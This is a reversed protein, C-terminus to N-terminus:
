HSRIYFIVIIYLLILLRIKLDLKMFSYYKKELWTLIKELIISGGRSVAKQQIKIMKKLDIKQSNSTSKNDKAKQKM